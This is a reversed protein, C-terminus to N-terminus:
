IEALYLFLFHQLRLPQLVLNISLGYIKKVSILTIIILEFFEGYEFIGFKCAIYSLDTKEGSDCPLLDTVDHKRTKSKYTSTRRAHFIARIASM